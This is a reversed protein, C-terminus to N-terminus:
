CIIGLQYVEKNILVHRIRSLLKRAIRIVAKNKNMRKSLENFKQMLAQDARLADWSAEILMIKIEKRGRKIIKGTIEREGSNHMSPVLGVFNCLQDLTSFRKIDYLETLITMATILGIGPISLLLQVNQNFYDSHSLERIQKNVLLIQKRLFEGQQLYNDLVRRLSDQEVLLNKLWDLYVKSWHRTSSENFRQPIEIGFQFLLSKLRNKVRSMDKVLRFRQRNLARYSEVEREPVDIGEFDKDRLIKALKRSDSRDTKQKREKDSTPVDAPHVVKCNIGFSQLERCIGFGSFGAEYVAHYVGGPFTRALYNSLVLSNSDQSMSKHEYQEGLITVHWQKKHVDIGIYFNQGSFNLNTEKNQM